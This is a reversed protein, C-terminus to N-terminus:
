RAIRVVRKVTPGGAIAVTITGRISRQHVRELTRVVRPALKLTV